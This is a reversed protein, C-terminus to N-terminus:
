SCEPLIEKLFSMFAAKMQRDTPGSDHFQEFQVALQSARRDVQLCVSNLSSSGSGSNSQVPWNVYEREVCFFSYRLTKMSTWLDPIDSISINPVKLRRALPGFLANNAVVPNMVGIADQELNSLIDLGGLYAVEGNIFEPLVCIELLFRLLGALINTSINVVSCLLITSGGDHLESIFLRCGNKQVFNKVNEIRCDAVDFCIVLRFGSSWKGDWNLFDRESEPEVSVFGSPLMCRMSIVRADGINEILQNTNFGGSISRSWDRAAAYVLPVRRLDDANLDVSCATLNDDVNAYLLIRRLMEIQINVEEVGLKSIVLKMAINLFRGKSLM